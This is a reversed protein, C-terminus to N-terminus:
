ANPEYGHALGVFYGAKMSIIHLFCCHCYDDSDYKMLEFICLKKWMKSILIGRINM